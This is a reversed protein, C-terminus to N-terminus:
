ARRVSTASSRTTSPRPTRVARRTSRSGLGPQYHTRCFAQTGGPASVTLRVRTSTTVAADAVAKTGAVLITTGAHRPTLPVWVYSGSGNYVCDYPVDPLGSVTANVTWIQGRYGAGATPLLAFSAVAATAAVGGCPVWAYSSGNYACLYPQDPISGSTILILTQGRYSASATPLSTVIDVALPVWVM